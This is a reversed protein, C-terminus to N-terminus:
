GALSRPKPAWGRQPQTYQFTLFYSFKPRTGYRTRRPTVEYIAMRFTNNSLFWTAYACGSQHSVQMRLCDVVGQLM